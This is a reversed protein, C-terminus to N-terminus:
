MIFQLMGTGQGNTAINVMYNQMSSILATVGTIMAASLIISM